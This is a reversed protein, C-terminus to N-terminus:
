SSSRVRSRSLSASPTAAADSSRGVLPKDVGTQADEEETDDADRQPLSLQRGDICDLIFHKRDLARIGAIEASRRLDGDEALLVDVRWTMACGIVMSDFKMRTGDNPRAGKLRQFLHAGIAQAAVATFAVPEFGLTRPDFPRSRNVEAIVPAPVLIRGGGGVVATVIKRLEDLGHGPKEAQMIVNADLM